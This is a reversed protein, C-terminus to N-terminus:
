AEPVPSGAARRVPRQSRCRHPSGPWDAQASHRVHVRRHRPWTRCILPDGVWPVSATILNALPAGSPTVAVVSFPARVFERLFAAWLNNTVARDRTRCPSQGAVRHPHYPGSRSGRTRTCRTLAMFAAQGSTCNPQGGAAWVRSAYAVAGDRFVEGTGADVYTALLGSLDGAMAPSVHGPVADGDLGDLVSRWGFENM